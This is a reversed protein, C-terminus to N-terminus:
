LSAVLGSLSASRWQVKESYLGRILPLMEKETGENCQVQASKLFAYTSSILIIMVLLIVQIIEIQIGGISGTHTYTSLIFVSPLKLEINYGVCM